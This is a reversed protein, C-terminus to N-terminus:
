ENLIKLLEKKLKAKDDGKLSCERIQRMQNKIKDLHKSFVRNKYDSYKEPIYDEGVCLMIFFKLSRYGLNKSVSEQM